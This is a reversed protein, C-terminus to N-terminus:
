KQAHFADMQRLLPSKCGMQEFSAQTAKSFPEAHSSRERALEFALEGALEFALEGALEFALEGALERAARGRSAAL